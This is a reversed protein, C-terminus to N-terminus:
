LYDLRAIRGTPTRPLYRSRDTGRGWKTSNNERRAVIKPSNEGRCVIEASNPYAEPMLAFDGANWGRAFAVDVRGQSLNDVVSWDEAVRLPNHLPMVVSGARLRIKQTIPALAGCLVAPSPYIGGFPHFHREPLWVAKFNNRDAFKSGELFLHYKNDAFEAENSSFYFLSFDMTTTSAAGNKQQLLQALLARKEAGSLENM